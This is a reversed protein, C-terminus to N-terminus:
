SPKNGQAGVQWDAPYALREDTLRDIPVIDTFGSNELMRKLSGIDHCSRHVSEQQYSFVYTHNLDDISIDGELYMRAVERMDPTVIGLEGGPKLLRYCMTVWDQAEKPTLHECFHAAYIRDVSNEAFHSDLERCDLTLDSIIHPSTSNDVNIWPKPLPLDCSGCNVWLSM